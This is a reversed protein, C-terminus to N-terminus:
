SQSASAAAPLLFSPLFLRCGEVGHTCLGLLCGGVGRGLANVKTIDDGDCLDIDGAQVGFVRLQRFNIIADPSSPGQMLLQQAGKGKGAEKAAEETHPPTNLNPIMSPHSPAAPGGRGGLCPLDVM